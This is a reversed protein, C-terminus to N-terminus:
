LTLKKSFRFTPCSFTVDHVWSHLADRSVQTFSLCKIILYVFSFSPRIHLCVRLSVRPALAFGSLVHVGSQVYVPSILKMQASTHLCLLHSSHYCSVPALPLPLVSVSSFVCSVCFSFWVCLDFFM